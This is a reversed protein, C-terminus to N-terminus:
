SIFYRKFLYTKLASKLASVNPSHAASVNVQARSLTIQTAHHPHKLQLLRQMYWTAHAGGLNIRHSLVNVEVTLM